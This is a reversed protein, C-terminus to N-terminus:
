GSWAGGESGASHDASHAFGSVVYGDLAAGLEGSQSTEGSAADVVEEV